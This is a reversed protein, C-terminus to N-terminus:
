QDDISWKDMDIITHYQCLNDYDENYPFRGYHHINFNLLDSFFSGVDAYIKMKDVKLAIHVNMEEAFPNMRVKYIDSEDYKMVISDDLNIDGYGNLIKEIYYNKQGDNINMDYIDFIAWRRSSFAHIVQLDITNIKHTPKKFNIDYVYLYYDKDYDYIQSKMHASEFANNTEFDTELTDLLQYQDYQPKKSDIYRPLFLPVLYICICISIMCLVIYQFIFIYSNTKVKSLTLQYNNEVLYKKMKILLKLMIIFLIIFFIIGFIYLLDGVIGILTMIIYIFGAWFPYMKDKILADFGNMILFVQIIKFALLIYTITSPITFETALLGVELLSIFLFIISIYYAILFPRSENKIMRLGLYFYISSVVSCILPIISIYITFSAFIFGLIFYNIVKKFPSVMDIADIFEFRNEDM